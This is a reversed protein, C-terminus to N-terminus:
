SITIGRRAHNTNDMTTPTQNVACLWVSDGTRSSPSFRMYSIVGPREWSSAGEAAEASEVPVGSIIVLAECAKLFGQIDAALDVILVAFRGHEAFECPQVKIAAIELGRM